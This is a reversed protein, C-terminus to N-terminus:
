YFFINGGAPWKLAPLLSVSLLRFFSRSEFNPPIHKNKSKKKSIKKQHMQSTLSGEEWGLVFWCLLRSFLPSRAPDPPLQHALGTLQGSLLFFLSFLFLVLFLSLFLSLSLSLSLSFSFPFSVLSPCPFSFPFSCSSSSSFSFSLFSLSLSLALSPSPSLSLFPALSCALPNLSTSLTLPLSLPLFM